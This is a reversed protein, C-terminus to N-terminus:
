PNKISRKNLIGNRLELICDRQKEITEESLIEIYQIIEPSGLHLQNVVIRGSVQYGIIQDPLVAFTISSEGALAMGVSREYELLLRCNPGLCEMVRRGLEIVHDTHKIYETNTRANENADVLMRQEIESGITKGM